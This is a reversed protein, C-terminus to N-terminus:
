KQEERKKEVKEAYESWKGDDLWEEKQEQIYGNWMKKNEEDFDDKWNRYGTYVTWGGLVILFVIAPIFITWDM